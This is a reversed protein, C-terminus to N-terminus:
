SKIMSRVLNEMGPKVWRDVIIKMIWAFLIVSIGGLGYLIKNKHSCDFLYNHFLYTVILHYLFIPMSLKGLSLSYKNDLIKSLWTKRLFAFLIIFGFCITIIFDVQTRAKFMMMYACDFIVLIEIVSLVWYGLKSLQVNRLKDYIDYLSMGLIMYAACRFMRPEIFTVVKPDRYLSGHQISYYAFVVLACMTAVM